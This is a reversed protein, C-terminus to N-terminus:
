KQFMILGGFLKNILGLSNECWILIANLANRKLALNEQRIGKKIGALPAYM